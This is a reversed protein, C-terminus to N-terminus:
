LEATDTNMAPPAALIPPETQRACPRASRLYTSSPSPTSVVFIDDHYPPAEISARVATRPDSRRDVRHAARM